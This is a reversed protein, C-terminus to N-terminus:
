TQWKYIMGYGGKRNLQPLYDKFECNKLLKVTADNSLSNVKAYIPTIENESCFKLIALLTETMIGQRRYDKLLAYDIEWGEKDIYSLFEPSNKAEGMSSYSIDFLYSNYSMLRIFGIFEKLDSKTIVWFILNRNEFDKRITEILDIVESESSVPLGGFLDTTEKDTFLELYAFIDKSKIERLTLRSTIIKPFNMKM